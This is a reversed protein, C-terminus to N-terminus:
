LPRGHNAHCGLSLIQFGQFMKRLKFTNEEVDM